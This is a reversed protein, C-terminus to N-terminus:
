AFFVDDESGFLPDALVENMKKDVLFSVISRTNGVFHGQVEVVCLFTAVRNDIIGLCTGNHNDLVFRRVNGDGLVDKILYASVVYFHLDSPKNNAVSHLM